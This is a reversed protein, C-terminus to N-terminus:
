GMTTYLFEEAGRGREGKGDMVAGVLLRMSKNGCDMGHSARMVDYFSCVM